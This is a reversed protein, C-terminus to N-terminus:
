NCKPHAMLTESLADENKSSAISEKRVLKEEPSKKLDLDGNDNLKRSNKMAEAREKFQSLLSNMNLTGSDNVIKSTHQSNKSLTQPPPKTPLPPTNATQKEPKAMSVVNKPQVHKEIPLKTSCPETPSSKQETRSNRETIKKTPKNQLDNGSLHQTLDSLQRQVAEIKPQLAQIHELHKLQNTLSENEESLELREATLEEVRSKLQELENRHAEQTLALTNLTSEFAKKLQANLSGFVTSDSSASISLGGLTPYLLTEQNYQSLFEKWCSCFHDDSGLALIAKANLANIINVENFDNPNKSIIEYFSDIEQSVSEDYVKSWYTSPSKYRTAFDRFLELFKASIAM